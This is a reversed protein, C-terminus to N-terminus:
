PRDITLYQKAWEIGLEVLRAQTPVGQEDWGLMQYYLRKAESLQDQDIIVGKLNGKTQPDGMRKPLVDDAETFGERLNFIKALTMGREVTKILRWYSMPWGTIAEVADRTQKRSYPVLICIGLYNTLHMWLGFQYVLRAKRPSLETSPISENIDISAWDDFLPGKVLATDQISSAHDAGAPNVCCNLGLGQKLRPDHMALEYGKVQIAFNEAGGGVKEAARKSGESLLNGIGQKRTIKGLVELMAHANGFRLEIGETDQTTILGNEFCEM